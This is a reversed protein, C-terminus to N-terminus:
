EMKCLMKPGVGVKCYGVEGTHDWQFVNDERYDLYTIVGLDMIGLDSSFQHLFLDTAVQCALEALRQRLQGAEAARREREEELAQELTARREKEREDSPCRVFSHCLAWSM